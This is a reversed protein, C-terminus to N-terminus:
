GTPLVVRQRVHACVGPLHLRNIRLERHKLPHLNNIYSRIDVAGDSAVTFDSPIWQYQASGRHPNDVLQSGSLMARQMCEVASRSNIKSTTCKTTGFVCCYLSPHVLDLVQYNSEPHWDKQNEPVSELEKVESVFKHKLKDNILLDSMWTEEVPGPLVFMGGADADLRKKEMMDDLTKTICSRIEALEQLIRDVHYWLAEVIRPRHDGTPVYAAFSQRAVDGRRVARIFAIARSV